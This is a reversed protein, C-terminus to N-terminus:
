ITTQLHLLNIIQRKKMKAAGRIQYWASSLSFNAGNKKSNVRYAGEGVKTQHTYLGVWFAVFFLVFYMRNNVERKHPQSFYNMFTIRRTSEALNRWSLLSFIAFNGDFHNHLDYKRCRRKVVKPLERSMNEQCNRLLEVLDEIINTWLINSPTRLGLRSM